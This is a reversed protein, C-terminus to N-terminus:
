LIFKIKRHMFLALYIHFGKYLKIRSRNSPPIVYLMLELLQDTNSQGSNYLLRDITKKPTYKRYDLM